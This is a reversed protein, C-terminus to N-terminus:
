VVEFPCDETLSEGVPGVNFDEHLLRERCLARLNVSDPMVNIVQEATNLRNAVVVALTDEIARLANPHTSDPGIIEYARTFKIVAGAPLNVFEAYTSM